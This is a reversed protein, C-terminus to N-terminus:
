EVSAFVPPPPPPSPWPLSARLNESATQQRRDIERVVLIALGAAAISLIGSIIGAITAIERSARAMEVQLYVNGAINSTLWLAWWLPLFAPTSAVVDPFFEQEVAESKQWLERVARYPVVLNVFPVFFSGVAWEPSYRIYKRDAGFAPLNTCARHLWMLFAIVTAFYVGLTLLSMSARLLVVLALAPNDSLQEGPQLRPLYMAVLQLPFTLLKLAAGVLLLMIVIRARSHASQYSARIYPPTM